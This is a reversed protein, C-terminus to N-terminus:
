IRALEEHHEDVVTALRRLPGAGDGAPVARPSSPGMRVRPRRMRRRWVGAPEFAALVGETAPQLVRTM